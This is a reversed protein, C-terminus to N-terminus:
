VTKMGQVLWVLLVSFGQLVSIIVLVPLNSQWGLLSWVIMGCGYSLLFGTSVSSRNSQYSQHALAILAATCFLGAFVIHTM